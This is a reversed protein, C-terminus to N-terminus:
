PTPVTRSGVGCRKDWSIQRKNIAKHLDGGDMFETILLMKDEELCAGQPLGVREVVAALCPASHWHLGGQQVGSARIGHQVADHSQLPQRCPHQKTLASRKCM